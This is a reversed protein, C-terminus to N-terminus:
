GSSHVRQWRRQRWQLAGLVREYSGTYVLLGLTGSEPGSQMPSLGLRGAKTHAHNNGM